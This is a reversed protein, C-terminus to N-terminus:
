GANGGRNLEHRYQVALHDAWRSRGTAKLRELYQPLMGRAHLPGGEGLVTLLPDIGSTSTRMMETHWQDLVALGHRVLGEREAALNHQEHPDDTLDFLMHDPYGHYADHYTRIFFYDHGALSFRVARQCTWAGQSVVLNERGSSQGAAISGAFSRGDWNAPVQGGILELVTAAFDVQYHLGKEVRGQQHDTIGPWRVILPVQTTVQDATQHDGYVNLEGLNEGHDGTIIIATHDMLGAEDLLAFLRGIHQDAYLTGTDYGDFMRRVEGLSHIVSPQRPFDGSFTTTATDYGNVEQASHPGAQSFHQQRVSDNLWGPVPQKAFPEGFEAPARYPTHPDWFNVHLLWNEESAHRELWELALPAVQDAREMGFHGPNHIERFGAYWHWGSHREAFSSVTATRYGRDALCRMWNTTGIQSEFGRSRGERFPESAAGGHNVVGNHIGLRGSFLATRSPLCPADSVYLNDMRVGEACIRDINPSTNRHYGYCGLHDPRMSDIDIYLIRM